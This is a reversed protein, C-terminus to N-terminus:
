CSIGLGLLYRKLGDLRADGEWCCLGIVVQTLLEAVALDWEHRANRLIAACEQTLLPVQRSLCFLTDSLRKRETFTLPVVPYNYNKEETSTVARYHEPRLTVSAVFPTSSTPVGSSEMKMTQHNRKHGINTGGFNLAGQQPRPPRRAQHHVFGVPSEESHASLPSRPSRLISGTSPRLLEPTVVTSPHARSPPSAVVEQDSDYSVFNNMKSLPPAIRGPEAATFSNVAPYM